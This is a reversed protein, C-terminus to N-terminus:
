VCPKRKVCTFNTLKISNGILNPLSYGFLEITMQLESTGVRSEYFKNTGKKIGTEEEIEGAEGTCRGM